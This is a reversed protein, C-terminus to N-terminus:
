EAPFIREDAAGTTAFSFQMQHFRWQDDTRVAVATFRFPWVCTEPLLLSSILQNGVRTIDLMKAKASEEDNELVNKSFEVFGEYKYDATIVDTVTGTTALWAVDGKASIQAAELDFLVDGWSEWDAKILKRVAARGKCWEGQGPYIGNTGIVELENDPGFLEMCTDLNAPDRETYGDQFKGLLARVEDTAAAAKPLPSDGAAYAVKLRMVREGEDVEGTEEFGVKRYFPEPCGEGPVYSTLLEAAGPRTKVHAILLKMAKFGFGMGQYKADVMLRWLFYEPKQPEDSLMLFGVPTEDAYIARFWARERAFYAQAISVDNPAVFRKQTEAVNLKLVPFLNEDTVERLTTTSDSTVESM